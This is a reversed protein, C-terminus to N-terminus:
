IELVTICNLPSFQKLQRDNTLFTDCKMLSAASLQLADMSKFSTYKARIKAAFDAIEDDIPVIRINLASVLRYFSDILKLNNTKYPYVFYEEKTIASTIFDVNNEYCRTFFEKVKFFYEPNNEDREILYIFPATDIFLRKCETM